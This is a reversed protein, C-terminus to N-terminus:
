NKQRGRMPSVNGRIDRGAVVNGNGTVTQAGDRTTSAGQAELMATREIARKGEASAARYNELLVKERPPLADVLAVTRRGTIVYSVDVGVKAVEALFGATPTVEKGDAAPGSEWVVQSRKSASGLAAFQTQSLGLRVREERLREGITM